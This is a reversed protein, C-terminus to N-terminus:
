ASERPVYLWVVSWESDKDTLPDTGYIERIEKFFAMFAAEESLGYKEQLMITTMNQLAQTSCAEAKLFSAGLVTAKIGFPALEVADGYRLRKAWKEGSRFTNFVKGVPLMARGCTFEMKEITANTTM